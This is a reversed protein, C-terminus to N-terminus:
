LHTKWLAKREPVYSVNDYILRMDHNRPPIEKPHIILAKSRPAPFTHFCIRLDLALSVTPVVVISLGEKEYGLVQTVLSKGGGTPMSILTTYGAPTNLPIIRPQKFIIM